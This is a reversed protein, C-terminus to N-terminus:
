CGLLIGGAARLCASLRQSALPCVEQERPGLQLPREEWCSGLVCGVAPGPMLRERSTYLNPLYYWRWLQTLIPDHPGAPQLRVDHVRLM